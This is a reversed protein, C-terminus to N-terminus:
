SDSLLSVPLGLVKHVTMGKPLLTAAIGTFAVCCVNKKSKLLNYLTTYVFTKGSGGPGDIYFCRSSNYDIVNLVGLIKDVIEKQDRNLIIYQRNGMDAFNGHLENSDEIHNNVVLQPMSPFNAVDNGKAILSECINSYAVNYARTHDGYLRLFDESLADKFNEWLEDPHVPQCYILIRVLLLRINVPVMWSVAEQMARSWQEDDHIFGLALCAELFTM